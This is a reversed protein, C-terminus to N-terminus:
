GHVLVCQILVLRPHKEDMEMGFRQVFVGGASKDWAVELSCRFARQSDRMGGSVVGGAEQDAGVAYGLLALRGDTGHGVRLSGLVECPNYRM